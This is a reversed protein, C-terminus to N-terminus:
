AELRMQELHVHEPEKLQRQVDKARDIRLNSEAAAGQAQLHEAKTLEHDFAQQLIERRAKIHQQLWAKFAVQQDVDFEPWVTQSPAEM